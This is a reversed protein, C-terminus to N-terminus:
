SRLEELQKMVEQCKQAYHVVREQNKEAEATRLASRASNLQEQLREQTEKQVLLGLSEIRQGENLDQYLIESQLITEPAVSIEKVWEPIIVDKPIEQNEANIIHLLGVVHDRLSMDATKSITSVSLNEKSTQSPDVTYTKSWAIYDERVSEHSRGTRHAVNELAEDRSLVNTMARVVPYVSEHIIKTMEIISGSIQGLQYAIYTDAYDVLKKWEAPDRVIIDAPDQGDPVVAVRVEMGRAVARLASQITARNGASDADFALIVTDVFRQILGLQNDSLATGSLAVTNSIGSQHSMVLDMQGEVVVCYGASKLTGKAQDFGYLVRSKDYLPGEPSNIYKGTNVKHEPPNAEESPFIFIRGSFGVVRGQPDSIPFMVRSRFRDIMGRKGAIALGAGIIHEDSIGKSHLHDYLGSWTDPAFGVHFGRASAEDIGRQKLYQKPEATKLLQVHYWKAAEDLARYMSTYADRVEPKVPKLEVGAKEALMKLADKFEIGEVEQIFTFIDGGKGTSFCHFLNKDPSVFFSPTRESTFPSKGKWHKGSQKLETYPGVVELISLRDKIQQKADSFSNTM